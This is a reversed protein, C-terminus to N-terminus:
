IFGFWEIRQRKGRRDTQPRQNKNTDVKMVLIFLMYIHDEKRFLIFLLLPLLSLFLFLFLYLRISEEAMQDIEEYEKKTRKAKNSMEVVDRHVDVKM